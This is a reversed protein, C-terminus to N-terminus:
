QMENSDLMHFVDTPNTCGVRIPSGLRDTLIIRVTDTRGSPEFEVYTGDKVDRRNVMLTNPTQVTPDAVALPVQVADQQVDASISMQANPAQQLMVQMKVGKDISYTQGNDGQAPQFVGSDDEALLQYTGRDPDLVLRYPRGESISQTRAFQSLAILQTATNANARGIRFNSLSPVIAMALIAIIVMVLILEMLTFGPRAGGVQPADRRPKSSSTM